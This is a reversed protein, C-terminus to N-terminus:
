RSSATTQSFRYSYRTVETLVKEEHKMYKQVTAVLNPILDYRKKLIADVTAFVNQVQNRKRILSNYMGIFIIAVIAVVILFVM